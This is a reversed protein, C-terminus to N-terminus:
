SKRNLKHDSTQGYVVGSWRGGNGCEAVVFDAPGRISCQYTERIASLEMRDSIINLHAHPALLLVYCSM